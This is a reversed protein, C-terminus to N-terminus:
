SNLEHLASRNRLVIRRSSPLGIAHDSVLQTMTRSVTEITLGLYDAIDQRSMPLELTDTTPLRKSMELLFCAVRQQASKVLLMLHEQVRRLERGTFTWLERAAECDREALSVVASRRIVAVTTHSIADASFQHEKGIELGFIDGPLYFGGIQRRGDRFIKYTRVAGKTVKYVFETPEGEGFIEENPGFTMQSGMREMAGFSSRVPVSRHALHVQSQSTSVTRLQTQTLM